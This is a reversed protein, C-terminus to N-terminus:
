FAAPDLPFILDIIKPKIGKSKKNPNHVVKGNKYIVCHNINDSNKGTVLLYCDKYNPRNLDDVDVPLSTFGFGNLWEVFKEYWEDTETSYINCFDPVEELPLEFLSALAAPFCNGEKEGFRTQYVKKM